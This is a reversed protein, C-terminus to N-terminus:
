NSYNKMQFQAAMETIAEEMKPLIVMKFEDGIKPNIKDGFKM